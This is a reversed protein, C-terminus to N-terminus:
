EILEPDYGPDDDSYVKRIDIVWNPADALPTTIEWEGEVTEHNAFSRLILTELAEEFSPAHDPDRITDSPTMGM